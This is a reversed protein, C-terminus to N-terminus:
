LWCGQMAFIKHTCTHRGEGKVYVTYMYQLCLIMASYVNGTLHISIVIIMWIGIYVAVYFMYKQCGHLYAIVSVTYVLSSWQVLLFIWNVMFMMMSPVANSEPDKKYIIYLAFSYIM